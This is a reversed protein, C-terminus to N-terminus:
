SGFTRSRRVDRDRDGRVSARVSVRSENADRRGESRRTGEGLHQAGDSGRVSNGERGSRQTTGANGGAQTGSDPAAAQALQMRTAATDASAPIALGLIAALGLACTRTPSRM